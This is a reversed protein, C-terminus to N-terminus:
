PPPQPPTPLCPCRYILVAIGPEEFRCTSTEQHIDTLSHRFTLCPVLVYFFTNTIIPTTFTSLLVPENAIKVLKSETLQFSQPFCFHQNFLLLIDSEGILVKSAELNIQFYEHYSTFNQMSRYLKLLSVFKSVRLIKGRIVWYCFGGVLM